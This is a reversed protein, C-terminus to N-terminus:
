TAYTGGVSWASLWSPSLIEFMGISSTLSTECTEHRIHFAGSCFLCDRLQVTQIPSSANYPYCEPINNTYRSSRNITPGMGKYEETVGVSICLDRFRPSFPSYIVRVWSPDVSPYLDIM